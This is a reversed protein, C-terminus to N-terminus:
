DDVHWDVVITGADPQVELVHVGRVWPILRTTTGTVELVDHAGTDFLARVRGLEVGDRNIVRMGILDRWFFEGPALPPLQSRLVAIPRRLLAGAQDRDDIGTLHAILGGRQARAASVDHREWGAPGRVYWPQYALLQDRPRTHSFVKLWGHTGFVGCVQGVVVYDPAAGEATAPLAHRSSGM